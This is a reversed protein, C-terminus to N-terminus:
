GNQRRKLEARYVSLEDRYYGGRNGQDERDMADAFHLTALVDQIAGQLAGASMCKAKAEVSEWDISPKIM